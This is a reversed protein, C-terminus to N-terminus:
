LAFSLFPMIEAIVALYAVLRKSWLHNDSVSKESKSVYRM